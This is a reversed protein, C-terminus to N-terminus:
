LVLLILSGMSNSKLSLKCAPGTNALAPGSQFCKAPGWETTHLFKQLTCWPKIISIPLTSSALASLIFDLVRWCLSWHVAGCFWYILPNYGENMPTRSHMNKPICFINAWIQDQKEWFLLV